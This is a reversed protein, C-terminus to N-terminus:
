DVEHTTEDAGDAEDNEREFDTFVKVNGTKRVFNKQETAYVSSSKVDEASDSIRRQMEILDNVVSHYAVKPKDWMVSEFEPSYTTAPMGTVMVVDVSFLAPYECLCTLLEKQDERFLIVENAKPPVLLDSMKEITRYTLMGDEPISPTIPAVMMLPFEPAKDVHSHLQNFIDMDTGKQDAGNLLTITGLKDLLLYIQADRLSVTRCAALLKGNSSPGTRISHYSSLSDVEEDSTAIISGIRVLGSTYLQFIRRM